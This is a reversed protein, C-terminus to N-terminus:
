IQFPVMVYDSGYTSGNIYILKYYLEKILKQFIFSYLTPKKNKKWIEIFIVPKEKKITEWAGELVSLEMGEVDIKIMSINTLKKSDITVLKIKKSITKCKEKTKNSYLEINKYSDILSMAGFNHPCIRPLVSIEIEKNQNSVGEDFVVVRNQLKNENVNLQIVDAYVPEFVYIFSKPSVIESLLLTHIGINGGVDIVNSHPRYYKKFYPYMFIEWWEGTRYMINTLQTDFRLLHVKKHRQILMSLEPHNPLPEPYFLLFQIPSSPNFIKKLEDIVNTQLQKDLTWVELVFQVSQRDKKLKRVRIGIISPNKKMYLVFSQIQKQLSSNPISHIKITYYGSDLYHYEENLPLYGNRFYYITKWDDKTSLIDFSYKQFPTSHSVNMHPTRVYYDIPFTNKEKKINPNVTKIDM